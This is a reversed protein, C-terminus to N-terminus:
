VTSKNGEDVKQIVKILLAVADDLKEPKVKDLTDQPSHIFKTDKNSLFFAAEIKQKKFAAHDSNSALMTNYARAEIHNEDATEAILTNLNENFPKKKLFGSKAVYALESGVMDVNIICSQEYHDAIEKQHAKVYEKSGYMGWEEATCWIFKLQTNQLPHDHFYRALNLLIVCGSGNDCAGMSSNKDHIFQSVLVSVLIIVSVIILVWQLVSIAQFLSMQENYSSLLNLISTAITVLVAIFYGLLMGIMAPMKIKPFNSSISDSHATLYIRAADEKKGQPQIDCLVNEGSSTEGIFKFKDNMLGKMGFAFVAISLLVTLIPLFGNWPQALRLSLNFLVVCLGMLLYLYKRGVMFATSWQIDETYPKLKYRKLFELLFDTTEHEGATGMMRPRSLISDKLIDFPTSVKTPM